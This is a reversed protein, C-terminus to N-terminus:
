LATFTPRGDVITVVWIQGDNSKLFSVPKTSLGSVIRERTLAYNNQENWYQVITQDDSEKITLLQGNTAWVADSIENSLSGVVDLETADYFVGSGLLVRAGDPSVRIPAKISISGHFPSDVQEGFTGDINVTERLLDNPSTGDRFHYFRRLVPSWTYERSPYNWEKQDILTGSPSYIFHSEWSGSPDVAFIYEGATELGLPRQPLNFLPTELLSLNPRVQTVLGNEYALYVTENQNSHAMYRPADRLPITPLYAQTSISWRFVSEFRKSLIYVINDSGITIDDPEYRLNTPNVSHSPIEPSIQDIDVSSVVLESSQTLEFTYVKAQYAFIKAINDNNLEFSGRELYSSDYAILKSDRYVIPRNEDFTLDKFRGGLATFYLLGETQYVTGSDDIVKTQDPSLYTKTASPYDGHYPSDRLPLRAGSQIEGDEPLEITLIDSPSVGGDRAFVEGSESSYSLGQLSYFLRDSTSVGLTNLDVGSINKSHYIYLYDSTAILNKVTSPVNAINRVLEGELTFEKVSRDFAVYLRDESITFASAPTQDRLNFDAIFQDANHDFRKIVAPSDFLFYSIGNDTNSLSDVWQGNVAAPDGPVVVPPSSVVESNILGFVAMLYNYNKAPEEEVVDGITSDGPPEQPTGGGSNGGGTSGARPMTRGTPNEAFYEFSDANRVAQDPNSRALAIAGSTGYVHDLTDAVVSFHSLEHIIVGAKSDAGANGLRWFIPCIYIEYARSPYVYAITREDGEACGCDFDLTRSNAASFIQDFTNQVRDWRAQTYAGFWENYRPATARLEAPTLRLDTRATNSISEAISLSLDLTSQRSSDCASFRPPVKTKPRDTLLLVEAAVYDSTLGQDLAIIYTGSQSFEYISDLAITNSVAQGPAITIYDAASPRVLKFVPGVYPISEGNITVDFLDGLAGQALPTERVLLNIPESTINVYTTEVLIEQDLGVSSNIVKLDIELGPTVHNSAFSSASFLLCLVFLAMWACLTKKETRNKLNNISM